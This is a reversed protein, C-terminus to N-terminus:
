VGTKIARKVFQILSSAIALVIWSIARNAIDASKYLDKRQLMSVTKLFNIVHIRLCIIAKNANYIKQFVCINLEIISIDKHVNQVNTKALKNAILIQANELSCFQMKRVNLVSLNSKMLCSACAQYSQAHSYNIKIIAQWVFMADRNISNIERM